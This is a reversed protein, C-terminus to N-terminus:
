KLKVVQLYNVSAEAVSQHMYQFMVVLGEEVRDSVDLEPMDKLFKM